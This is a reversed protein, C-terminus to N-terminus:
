RVPRIVPGGANGALEGRVAGGGSPKGLLLRVLKLQAIIGGCGGVNAPPESPLTALPLAFSLKLSVTPVNSGGILDNLTESGLPNLKALVALVSPLCMTSLPALPM